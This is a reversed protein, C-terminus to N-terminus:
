QSPEVTKVVRSNRGDAGVVVRALETVTTGSDDHGRIGTVAGDDVLIEDVNFHERVEVGAERAADV